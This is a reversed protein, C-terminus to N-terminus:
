RSGEAAVGGSPDAVLVTEPLTDILTHALTPDTEADRLREVHAEVLEPYPALVTEAVPEVAHLIPWPSRFLM